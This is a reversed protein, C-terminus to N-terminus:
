HTASHPQLAGTDLLHRVHRRLTREEGSVGDGHDFLWKAIKPISGWHEEPVHPWALCIKLHKRPTTAKPGRGRRSEAVFTVEYVAGIVEQIPFVIALIRQRAAKDLRMGDNFRMAKLQADGHSRMKRLKSELAGAISKEFANIRPNRKKKLTKIIKRTNTM